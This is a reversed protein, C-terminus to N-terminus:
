KMRNVLQASKKDKRENIWKLRMAMSQNTLLQKIANVLLRRENLMGM